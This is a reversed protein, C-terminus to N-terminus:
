VGAITVLKNAADLTATYSKLPFAAPGRAVSGDLNFLSGHCPCSLDMRSKSYGVTCGAHTCISSLADVQTDSVRVVILTDGATQVYISGGVTALPANASKTLDLCITHAACSPDADPSGMTIGGDVSSGGGTCGLAGLLGGAAAVGIGHLVSRRSCSRCTM